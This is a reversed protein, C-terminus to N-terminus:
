LRYSEDRASAATRRPLPRRRRRLSAGARDAGRDRVALGLGASLLKCAVAILIPRSLGSRSTWSQSRVRITRSVL